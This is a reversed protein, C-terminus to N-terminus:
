LREIAAEIEAAVQGWWPHGSTAVMRYANRLGEHLREVQPLHGWTAKYEAFLRTKFDTYTLEHTITSGPFVTFATVVM